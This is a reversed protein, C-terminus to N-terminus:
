VSLVPLASYLWFNDSRRALLTRAAKTSSIPILVSRIVARPYPLSNGTASLFEAELRWIFRRTSITMESSFPLSLVRQTTDPVRQGSSTGVGRGVVGVQHQQEQIFAGKRRRRQFGLHRQGHLEPVGGQGGAELLLAEDEVRDQGVEGPGVGVGPDAFDDLQHAQEGVAGEELGAGAGQRAEGVEPAAQALGIGCSSSAQKYMSAPAPRM